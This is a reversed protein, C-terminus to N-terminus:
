KKKEDWKSAPPNNPIQNSFGIIKVGTEQEVFKPDAMYGANALKEVLSAVGDATKAESNNWDFYHNQLPSYIPSLKILRPKIEKNFIYKFFLKDANYRDEALKYQIQASGVYTKQDTLSSGGLIRKSVEDNIREVFVDFTDKSNGAHTDGVEFKEQGRGIMFSNRKFNLASGYLQNLRANDERDTTIFLPPVGYKDIFDMWAGFGLKKALIVPALRELMGLERDKGIQVYYNQYIGEKYRWGTLNGVEKLILGKQPIFHSQPIENVTNLEGEETLEFLELLSTGQFKSNLVLRILDEFWSRELLWSLEENENGNDDVIKFPSRQTYLIRTDIVSALHNDLLLNNYLSTLASRDPNENDLALAVATKYDEMSKAQISVAQPIIQNSFFRSSREAQAVPQVTKYTNKNGPKHRRKKSM